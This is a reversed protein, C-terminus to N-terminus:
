GLFGRSLDRPTECLSNITFTAHWLLVTSWLFGVVLGGWGLFWWAAVGLAIPWAYSIKELWLIEPYKQFERIIKPDMEDCDTHYFMWAVHSWWFGGKVPSHMDQDTDSHKHHARHHGAWWLVGKQASSAALLAMAFQTWRGMKYTRHSFYRHYGATVGFMRIFFLFGCILFDRMSVGTWLAAICAIHVLVFMVFGASFGSSKRKVSM